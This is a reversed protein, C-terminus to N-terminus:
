DDSGDLVRLKNLQSIDRLKSLTMVYLLDGQPKKTHDAQLQLAVTEGRTNVLEFPYFFDVGRKICDFTLSQFEEFSKMKVRKFFSRDALEDQLQSQSMGLVDELGHVVVNFRLSDDTRSMFIISNSLHGSLIEMQMQSEHLETVDRAATFFRKGEKSEGLYYCHLAFYVISGDPKYFGITDVAGNLEDESARQLLEYLQDRENEPVFRQIDVLRDHFEPVGVAKYFMQNFRVIDVGNDKRWLYFAVAGLVNNLMANSYIGEDLIEHMRIEDNLKEDFGRLDIKEGNQIIKEFEEIPMPRYYYFGQIYRCGLSDLFEVQDETEVGETIIPLGMTKAMNIISEVIHMSKRKGEDDMRLFEADLKIADVDLSSLVNLSSYGSGFDDMLVVFGKDHLRQVVNEVTASSDAFTSETIEIKLLEPPIRYKEVLREFCAPVDITYIDVQSVNVSAPVGEHGTDLWRRICACVEEWMYLDLDTIFGYKELAPIFRVPPIIEGSPKKWRALAEVGVIKSSSIRCQPQVYVVFEHERIARQFDLVIEYERKTKELMSQDFLRIDMKISHRATEAAVLARDILDYLPVGDELMTVGFLIRFGAATSLEEVADDLMDHLADIKKKDFPMVIYFDDHGFYGAICQEKEEVEALHEGIRALLIDGTERGYWDNFLRFHDIDIAIICWNSTDNEKIFTRTTDLFAKERLLRTMMDRHEEQEFNSGLTKGFERDKQNQIDFIYCRAVGSPINFREGSFVFHEVWRWGGNQLRYRFQSSRVGPTESEEQRQMLFEPDMLGDFVAQDDPHVMYERAYKFMETYSSDFVPVHYKGEVHFINLCRDNPIDVEYLEDFSSADMWRLAESPSGDPGFVSILKTKM